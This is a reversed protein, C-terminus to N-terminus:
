GQGHGMGPMARASDVLLDHDTARADYSCRTTELDVCGFQLLQGQLPVETSLIEFSPSCPPPPSAVPVVSGLATSGDIHSPLGLETLSALTPLPVSSSFVGAIDSATLAPAAIDTDGNAAAFPPPTVAFDVVVSGASIALIVIREMSVGLAAAVDSRFGAEFAGRASTGPAIAALEMPLTLSSSLTAPAPPAPPLEPVEPAEPSYPLTAGLQLDSSPAPGAGIASFALTLGLGAVLLCVVCYGLRRKSLHRTWGKEENFDMQRMGSKRGSRTSGRSGTSWNETDYVGMAHRYADGGYGAATALSTSFSEVLRNVHTEMVSSTM